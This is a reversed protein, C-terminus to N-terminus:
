LNKAGEKIWEEVVDFSTQDINVLANATPMVSGCM